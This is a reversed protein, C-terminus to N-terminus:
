HAAELMAKLTEAATEFQKKTVRVIIPEAVKFFGKSEGRVTTTLRTGSPQQQCQYNM